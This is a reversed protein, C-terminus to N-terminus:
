EEPGRTREKMWSRWASGFDREGHGGSREDRTTLLGPAIGLGDGDGERLNVLPVMSPRGHACQFPFACQSLKQLLMQCEPRTLADNFMIASRCARSNILSLIGPPCSGGQRLWDPPTPEDEGHSGHSTPRAPRRSWATSTSPGPGADKRQWVETRLLDILITRDARCREAIADPLARVVLQSAQLNRSPESKESEVPSELSYLIGWRAFHSAYATFLMQEQHSIIFSSPPTLIVTAIASQPCIAHPITSAEPNPGRCLDALLGEVRIREDAAHQDIIVLVQYSRFKGEAQRGEEVRLQMCVLLYKQDIQAILRSRSLAEKSLKAMFLSTSESFAQSPSSGWCQHGKEPGEFSLLPIKEECRNFVPNNWTKLLESVWSGEELKGLPDSLSHDLRAKLLKPRPRCLTTTESKSGLVPQRLPQRVELGTRASLMITAGSIPNTWQIFDDLSSDNEPGNTVSSNVQLSARGEWSVTGETDGNMISSDTQCTKEAAKRIPRVEALSEPTSPISFITSDSAADVAKLSDRKRKPIKSQCLLEDLEGRNGSKIRSWASFAHGVYSNRDSRKHFLMSRSIAGERTIADCVKDTKEFQDSQAIRSSIIELSDEGVSLCSDRVALNPFGDRSQRSESLRRDQLPSVSAGHRTEAHSKLRKTRPRLHHDDLFKVIMANLPSCINLLVNETEGDLNSNWRVKLGGLIEIRIFFMPWRDVSKGGGRLQKLTSGNHHLRKRNQKRPSKAREPGDDEQGFDSSAFRQNVEDYLIRNFEPDVHHIGMSIFQAYKGPSPQLSIAGHISISSTEISTEIWKSWDSPEVYGAQSLVSRVVSVDFSGTGSKIGPLILRPDSKARVLLKKANESNKITLTVPSSWALILAVLKNILKEWLKEQEQGDWTLSRQKVRVPMNGFLDHVHM